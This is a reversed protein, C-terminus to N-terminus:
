PHWLRIFVNGAAPSVIAQNTTGIVDIRDTVTMWNATGLAPDEELVFGGLNTPWALVVGNGARRIALRPVAIAAFSAILLRNTLATLSYSASASLPGANDWTMRDYDSGNVASRYRAGDSGPPQTHVVAAILPSALGASFLASLLGRATQTRM